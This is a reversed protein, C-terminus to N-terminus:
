MCALSVCPVYWLSKCCPYTNPMYDDVSVWGCGINEVESGSFSFLLRRSHGLVTKTYEMTQLVRTATTMNRVAATVSAKNAIYFESLADMDKRLAAVQYWAYSRNAARLMTEFGKSATKFENWHEPNTSGHAGKGWHTSEEENVFIGEVGMLRRALRRQTESSLSSARRRHVAPENLVQEFNPASPCEEGRRWFVTEGNPGAQRSFCSFPFSSSREQIVDVKCKKSPVCQRQVEGSKSASDSGVVGIVKSQVGSCQPWTSCDDSPNNAMEDLRAVRDRVRTTHVGEKFNCNGANPGAQLQM